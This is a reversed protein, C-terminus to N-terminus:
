VSPRRLSNDLSAQVSGFEDLDKDANSNLLM